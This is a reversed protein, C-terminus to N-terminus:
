QLFPTSPFSFFKGEFELFIAFFFKSIVKLNKSYFNGKM